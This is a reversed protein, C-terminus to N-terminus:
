DAACRNYQLIFNMTCVSNNYKDIQINDGNLYQGHKMYVVTVISLEVM